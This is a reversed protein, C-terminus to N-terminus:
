RSLFANGNIIFRLPKDQASSVGIRPTNKISLVGKHLANEKLYLPKRSLDHGDLSRDIAFAQCLKGPGSTLNNIKCGEGRRKQMLELGEVPEVARILVAEGKGEPGTVVNFCYHNGYIFYVYAIGPPGFMTANRRSKGRAAHCASDNESLYAETEIIIGSVLGEETERCIYQGLLKCAAEKTDRGLFETNLSPVSIGETLM